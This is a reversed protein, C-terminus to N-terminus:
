KFLLPMYSKFEPPTGPPPDLPGDGLQGDANSGWCKFSSNELIACAHARGTAINNVNGTVVTVRIPRPQNVRTGDGLQKSTNTGWCKVSGDVGLVCSFADGAAIQKLGGSLDSVQVPTNANNTTGDGLQGGLNYGWCKAGGAQLLACNHLAGVAIASVGSSLGTVDSPPMIEDAFVGTGLQGQDNQGWCKVGGTNLLACTHRMGTGIAVVGSLNAVDVPQNQNNGLSGLQGGNNSGWCKVNSTIMVVCTHNEGASVSKVGSSLGTVDISTLRTILSSDGLQGYQNDGWCKLGGTLTVACTHYRGLSLSAIGNALGVVDVPVTHSIQTGDGIQGYYNYGWCQVGDTSTVACTHSFGASITKYTTALINNTLGAEPQPSVNDTQIYAASNQAAFALSLFFAFFSFLSKQHM